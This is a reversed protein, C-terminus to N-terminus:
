RQRDFNNIEEESPTLIVSLRINGCILAAGVIPGFGNQIQRENKVRLGLRDTSKPLQKQSFYKSGYINQMQTILHVNKLSGLIGHAWKQSESKAAGITTV